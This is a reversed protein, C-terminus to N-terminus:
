EINYQGLYEGTIPHYVFYEPTQVKRVLPIGVNFYTEIKQALETSLRNLNRWEVLETELDGFKFGTGFLVLDLVVKPMPKQKHNEFFNTVQDIDIKM